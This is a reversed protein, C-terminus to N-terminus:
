IAKKKYSPLEVKKESFYAKDISIIQKFLAELVNVVISNGALKLLKSQSLFMRNKTIAFNEKKVIQFDSEDFGMLLFTERPTLNRYPAVMSDEPFTIQHNILGATPYRDQKTTLTKAVLGTLSSGEALISSHDHIRQRSPTYNPTSEIAEELYQPNSYDLRLFKEMDTKNITTYQLGSVFENEIRLSNEPSLISLLYTRKRNQPVGFDLANLDLPININYGHDQLLKLWLSFNKEHMKSRIATVNEMLLYRPKPLSEKDYEALLRGIQWLLSSRNGSNPDIGTKNNWWFGSISLDQCPFSYTLLDAQPLDKAHVQTIDVLNNNRNISHLIAKLQRLSMRSLSTDSIKDKGNNSLNYKRLISLLDDKSFNDYASIDQPGHHILDYAYMAGIEWECTAEIKYTFTPDKKALRELAKAQAGIGSFTEIVKFTM